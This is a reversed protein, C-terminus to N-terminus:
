KNKKNTQVLPTLQPRLRISIGPSHYEVFDALTSAARLALGVYFVVCTLFLFDFVIFFVFVFLCYEFFVCNFFLLVFDFCFCFVDFVFAVFVYNFIM